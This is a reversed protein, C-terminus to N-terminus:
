LFVSLILVEGEGFRKLQSQIFAATDSVERVKDPWPLWMKLHERNSDTLRYIEEASQPLALGVKLNSEIERYFMM